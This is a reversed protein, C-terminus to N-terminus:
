HRVWKNKGTEKAEYLANDAKLILKDSNEMSSEYSSVGMSATVSIEKSCSLPFATKNISDFLRSLTPETDGVATNPLLIIFEEGGFRGVIDTDRTNASLIRAFTQLVQDGAQHGYTDNIKKFNDIDIMILSLDVGYRRSQIFFQQLRSSVYIRNYLGTLSDNIAMRKLKEQYQSMDRTFVFLLYLM